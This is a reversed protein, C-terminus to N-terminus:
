ILQSVVDELNDINRELKSLRQVLLQSLDNWESNECWRTRIKYSNSCMVAKIIAIIDNDSFSKKIGLKERVDTWDVNDEGGLQVYGESEEFIFKDYYDLSYIVWHTKGKEFVIETTIGFYNLNEFIEYFKRWGMDPRYFVGSHMVLTSMYNINNEKIHVRDSNSIIKEM